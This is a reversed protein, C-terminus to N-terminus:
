EAEANLPNGLACGAGSAEEEGDSTTSRHEGALDIPTEAALRLSDLAECDGIALAKSRLQWCAAANASSADVDPRSDSLFLVGFDCDFSRSDLKERCGLSAFM